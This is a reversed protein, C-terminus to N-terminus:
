KEPTKNPQREEPKSRGGARKPGWREVVARGVALDQWCMGTGKFVRPRADHEPHPLSARETVVDRLTYLDAPRVLGERLPIVIEGSESLATELSEVLVISRSVLASDIERADPRRAGVALVVAHDRVAKGSFLPAPSSTCCIILGADAVLEDLRARSDEGPSAGPSSHASPTVHVEPDLGAARAAELVPTLRQRSRGVLAVSDILGLAVAGELHAQAQPGTGFIVTRDAHAGTRGVDSMTLLRHALFSVAPTRLRTLAAGDLLALPRGQDDALFFIGQISPTGPAPDDAIVLAKLGTHGGWASPMLLLQGGTAPVKFRLIDQEPDVGQLLAEHLAYIAQPLDVAALLESAGVLRMGAFIDTM